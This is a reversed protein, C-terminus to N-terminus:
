NTQSLSLSLSVIKFSHAKLNKQSKSSYVPLSLSLSGWLFHLECPHNKKSHLSTFCISAVGSNLSPTTCDQFCYLHPSGQSHLSWKKWSTFYQESTSLDFPSFWVCNQLMQQDLRQALTWIIPYIFSKFVQTKSARSPTDPTFSV